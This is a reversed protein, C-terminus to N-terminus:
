AELKSAQFSIHADLWVKPMASARKGIKIFPPFLGENILNYIQAKSLGTLKCVDAPRLLQGSPPIGEWSKKHSQV